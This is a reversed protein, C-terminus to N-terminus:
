SRVSKLVAAPDPAAWVSSIMAIGQAGENWARLMNAPKLGGLAYVPISSFECLCRFGDWGLPQGAPHTNTPLVPSVTIFDLGLRSAHEVEMRNHCSAAVLRSLGAPRENLQLLQGATLHIGDVESLAAGPNRQNSLLRAGYERCIDHLRDALPRYKHTELRPCRLQLLRVGEQLCQEAQRFFNEDYSKLDPTILYVPPLQLAGIIAHNAAPFKRESLRDVAVWACSQGERGHIDGHWTEVRWVDLLVPYEPYHHHIRIFPRAQEVHLNLEEHLERALADRVSEGAEVKGGPFEWLGGQEASDPRLAILVEGNHNSVIGVAIHLAQEIM